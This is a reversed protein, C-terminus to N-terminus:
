EGHEIEETYYVGVVNPQWCKEVPAFDVRTIVEGQEGRLEVGRPLGEAQRIHARNPWRGFRVQYRRAAKQVAGALDGDVTECWMPYSMNLRWALYLHHNDLDDKWTMVMVTEGDEAQMQAAYPGQGVEVAAMVHVRRIGLASMDDRLVYDSM